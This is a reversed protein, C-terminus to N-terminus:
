SKDYQILTLQQILTSIENEINSQTTYMPRIEDVFMRGKQFMSVFYEALSRVEVGQGRLKVISRKIKDFCHYIGEPIKEGHSAQM